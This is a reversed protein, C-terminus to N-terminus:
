LRKKLLTAQFKGSVKTFSKKVLVKTFSKKVLTGPLNCAVKNFFPIQCMHKRTFKTFNKLAGKKCFVEPRTSRDLNPYLACFADDFHPEIPVDCLLRNIDKSNIDRKRHIFKLGYSIKNIARVAMPEGSM